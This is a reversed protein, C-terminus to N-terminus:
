FIHRLAIENKKMYTKDQKNKRSPIRHNKFLLDFLILLIAEMANSQDVTFTHKKLCMVCITPTVIDSSRTYDYLEKATMGRIRFGLQEDTSIKSKICIIFM